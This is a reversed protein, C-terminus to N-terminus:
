KGIWLFRLIFILILLIESAFFSVLIPKKQVFHRKSIIKISLNLNSSRLYRNGKEELFKKVSDIKLVGFTSDLKRSSYTNIIKYATLLREGSRKYESFNIKVKENNLIVPILIRKIRYITNTDPEFMNQDFQLLFHSSDFAFVPKEGGFFIRLNEIDNGDQNYYGKSWFQDLENKLEANRLGEFFDSLEHTHTWYTFVEAKSHVVKKTKSFTWYGILFCLLQGSLILWKNRGAWELFIKIIVGFERLSESYPEETARRTLKQNEIGRNM